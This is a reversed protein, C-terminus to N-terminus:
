VRGEAADALMREMREMCEAEGFQRGYDAYRAGQARREEPRALWWDMRDRLSVADGHAFLSRGDLAFGKTASCPSDSIVPVLGCRVAELCSIAEIEAESPHVYLDAQCLLDSLDARSYFRQLPPLPLRRAAYRRLEEALPGEGAFVLQLRDAYASQAAADILVRHRKERSYRGTFVVVLRDAWEAPRQTRHPRFVPDVGNSIVYHNTRRGVEREFLDCIFASPYHVADCYRYVRRYLAEYVCHNAFRSGMLGFHATVNEAQVHFSATLPVGTERALRAARQGLAFPTVLHVVDADRIAARLAEGDPRALVVGNRRVYGNFPGFSLAPVIRFGEEGERERDPCVVTLRHGAARLARILNMAAISTGNNEPGLVDCIVTVRM